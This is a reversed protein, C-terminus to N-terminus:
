PICERAQKKMGPFRSYAFTMGPRGPILLHMAPRWHKWIASHAVHRVHAASLLKHISENSATPPRLSSPYLPQQTLVLSQLSSYFCGALRDHIRRARGAVPLLTPALFEWHLSNQNSPGLDLRWQPTTQPLPWAGEGSNKKNKFHSIKTFNLHKLQSILWHCSHNFEHLNSTSHM